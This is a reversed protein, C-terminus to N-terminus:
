YFDGCQYHTSEDLRCKTDSFISMSTDVVELENSPNGPSQEQVVVKRKSRRLSMTTDQLEHHNIMFVMIILTFVCIYM